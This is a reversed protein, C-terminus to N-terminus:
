QIIEVHGGFYFYQDINACSKAYDFADKETDFITDVVKGNIWLRFSRNGHAAVSYVLKAEEPTSVSIIPKRTATM